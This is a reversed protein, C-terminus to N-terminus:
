AGLRALREAALRAFRLTITRRRAPALPTEPGLRLVEAGWADALILGRDPPLIAAPFSEPVAFFFRDCFALYRAWKADAAYDARCSKVEVCWVEGKPGLACLDMRGGEGTPFEPLAAFGLDALHRAVGLALRQGPQLAHPADAGASDDITDM